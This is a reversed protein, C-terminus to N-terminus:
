RVVFAGGRMREAESRFQERWAELPTPEAPAEDPHDQSTTATAVDTASNSEAPTNGSLALSRLTDREALAFLTEIAQQKEQQSGRLGAAAAPYKEITSALDDAYQHFEPNEALVQQLAAQMMVNEDRAPAQASLEQKVQEVRVATEFSSAARPQVAFWTEMIRDYLMTQGAQLAQVAFQPAAAPNLTIQEDVWDITAQDPVPQVQPQQIQQRIEALENIVREYEANQQRHEGLENGLEGLKPQASVAAQLAKSVDGGYKKLYAAVAPDDSSPAAEEVPTEVTTETPAEVEAPTPAAPEEEVVVPEPAEDFTHRRIQDAGSESLKAELAQEAALAADSKM